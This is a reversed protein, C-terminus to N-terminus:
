DRGGLASAWVDALSQEFPIRPSWGTEAQILRIDARSDAPGAARSHDVEVRVDRGSLAILAELGEGVGHSQGTGVHYLGPRARLALALLAEAVDRVDIFDRRPDLNGVQLTTMGEGNRLLMAFRGFSQDEPMGPGIPNFLRAVITEVPPEVALAAETAAHKSRGYDTEPRCPYGEGVPLDEVPVSGLEAASGAVIVRVPRGIAQLADLLCITAQRNARDLAVADAPPTKGALHFILMPAVETLARRLGERDLLDAQVFRGPIPRRGLAVVEIPERALRELLHRGLFGSGGTVLWTPRHDNM